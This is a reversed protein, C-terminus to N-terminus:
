PVAMAGLRRDLGLTNRWSAPPAQTTEEELSPAHDTLPRAEWTSSLWEGTTGSVPSTTGDLSHLRCAPAPYELRDPSRERQPALRPTPEAESAGKWASRSVSNRAVPKRSFGLPSRM